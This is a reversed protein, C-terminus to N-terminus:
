SWLNMELIVNLIGFVQTVIQFLKVTVLPFFGLFGGFDIQNLFCLRHHIRRQKLSMPLLAIGLLFGLTGTALPGM